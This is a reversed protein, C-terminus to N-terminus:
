YRTFISFAQPSTSESTAVNVMLSAGSIVAYLGGPMTLLTQANLLVPKPTVAVLAVPYTHCTEVLPPPAQAVTVLTAGYEPAVVAVNAM